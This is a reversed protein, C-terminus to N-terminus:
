GYFADFVWQAVLDAVLTTLFLVVLATFVMDLHM